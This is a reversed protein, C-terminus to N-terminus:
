RESPDQRSQRGRDRGGTPGPLKARRLRRAIRPLDNAAFRWIEDYNVPSAADDYPHASDFRFRRLAPWPIGPNSKRFSQGIAESAGGLLELFHEITVRNRVDAADLFEDRGRRVIQAIGTSYRLMDDLFRRERDPTMKM